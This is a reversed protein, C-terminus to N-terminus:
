QTGWPSCPFRQVLVRGEESVKTGAPNNRMKKEESRKRVAAVCDKNGKRIYTKVSTGEAESILEAKALQSDTKSTHRICPFRQCRRM